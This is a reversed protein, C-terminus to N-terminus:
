PCFDIDKQNKFTNIEKLVKRWEKWCAEVTRESIFIGYDISSEDAVQIIIPKRQGKIRPVSYNTVSSPMRDDDADIGQAERLAFEINDLHDQQAESDGWAKREHIPIKNIKDYEVQILKSGEQSHAMLADHQKDEWLQQCRSGILLRQDEDLIPKRGAGERRGGRRM